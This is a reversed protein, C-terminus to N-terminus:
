KRMLINKKRFLHSIRFKFNYLPQIIDFLPLQYSYKGELLESSAKNFIVTQFIYRTIYLLISVGLVIWQKNLISITITFILIIYFLARSFTEGGMLYRQIGKFYKSTTVYNLKMEKWEKKYKLPQARVISGPTTEIRTNDSTSIKNIFLDDEGLQLNLHSSFGKNQFFYEKRYAMNRGIGMYPKGLLACGLYRMSCLLNDFRSKQYLWGKSQEYGSYGLVIGTQETFNRAMLKLWDSSAPYCNAETFVLWDYKSAKIGLTVALKKRSIYRSNNPIFTHYLHPYKSEMLKLVDESEDSFNDNIVIVEFTPYNQELVTPLHKELNESENKAYIIVSLPPQEATFTVRNKRVAANHKYIRNYVIIYYLLQILWLLGLVSVLVTEIINFAFLKM